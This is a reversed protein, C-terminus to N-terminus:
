FTMKLAFQIQRSTTATNTIVGASSSFSSGSFTVANPGGFNAHNLLNFVEARFQMGVRESIPIQKFLSTDINVLRPGVYSGRSVNGFTGSLPLSFANPDFWQDVKGLIVPGSFAPNHNPVDPNDTDGTGSVNAGIIPTFPFGSQANVIGNWQWDGILMNVWGSSGSGFAQGRGFPLEYAFNTNFQHKLSFAAIGRSLSLDYKNLIAKPQNLSASSSLGSNYDIGKAWTYNTKFTLGHTSRKVLSVNLSNYSMTGQFMQSNSKNQYPNPYCNVSAGFAGPCKGNVGTPPNYTTGQPVTAPTRGVGGSRCGAPDNCVQPYPANMNVPVITHYAESGVYSLQIALNTTIARELAFSWQQVTPTYFDPQVGGVSYTACNARAAVLEANCTPPLPNAPNIPTFSLMPGALVIRPNFPPNGDLRFSQNDQLDKHVGFGARVAWTGTGTPDWALGVRPQLLLKAHNETLCNKGILPETIPISDKDYLLNACRGLIENWGSTAEDRLGLRLTLNSKVKFEDQVYLAYESQRWGLGTVVINANFQTPADQLFALLSPYAATGTKNQNPGNQNDQVRQFWAGVSVTHRGKTFHVDDSVTFLNVANQTPDNGQAAVIGSAAATSVGGGITIQGPLRGSIFSLNAPISNDTSPTSNPAFSRTFGLNLANLVTPSFIHTEQVALL